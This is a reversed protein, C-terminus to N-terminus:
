RAAARCVDLVRDLGTDLPHAEAISRADEGTQARLAPDALVRLAVAVSEPNGPEELVIGGRAGMLERVGNPPTTVVPLGMSLAELCVLSCPDYFTPHVLVDAAPYLRRPDEFGPLLHLREAVGLRRALARLDAPLRGGAVVLHFSPDLATVEPRALGRIAAEAGKLRPHWALLLGVYAGDLGFETRLASPPVSSPDFHRVDVGNPVVVARKASAPYVARMRQRLAHSVCIVRPGEAVGLLAQEAEAFFRHKGSLERAFLRLRSVRGRAADQAHLADAVLGGHPLYVDVGPCHRFGLVADCGKERLTALGREAFVRDRAPRSRPAKVVVHEVGTTNAVLSAVVVEDGARLARAILRMTHLEAGGLTQLSDVLIGLKV